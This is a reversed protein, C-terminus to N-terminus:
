MNIEGSVKDILAIAREAYQEARERKGRKPSNLPAFLGFNANMPQFHKADTTTIYHALSGMATAPPLTILDEEKALRAANIGALLGAAASEVYGEVGTIQGAFFLDSRGQFQYTPELL